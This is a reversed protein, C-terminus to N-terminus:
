IISYEHWFAGFWGFWCVFVTVVYPKRPIILGCRLNLMSPPPKVATTSNAIQLWCATGIIAFTRVAFRWWGISIGDDVNRRESRKRPPETIFATYDHHPKRHEMERWKIYDGSFISGWCGRAFKMSRDVPILDYLLSIDTTGPIQLACTVREYEGKLRSNTTTTTKTRNQLVIHSQNHRITHTYKYVCVCVNVRM